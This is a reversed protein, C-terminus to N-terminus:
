VIESHDSNLYNNIILLIKSISCIMGDIFVPPASFINTSSRGFIFSLLVLHEKSSKSLVFVYKKSVMLFAPIDTSYVFEGENKLGRFINENILISNEFFYSTM